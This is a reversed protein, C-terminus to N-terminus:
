VIAIIASDSSYFTDEIHAHNESIPYDEPFFQEMDPSFAIGGVGRFSAILLVLCFLISLYRYQIIKEAFTETFDKTTNM